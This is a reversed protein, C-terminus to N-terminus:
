KGINQRSLLKYKKWCISHYIPREDSELSPFLGLQAWGFADAQQANGVAMSSTLAAIKATNFEYWLLFIMM